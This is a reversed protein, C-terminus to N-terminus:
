VCLPHDYACSIPSGLKLYALADLKKEKKKKKPHRAESELVTDSWGLRLNPFFIGEFIEDFCFL